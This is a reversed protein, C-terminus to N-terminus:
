TLSLTEVVTSELVLDDNAGLLWLADAEFRLIPKDWWRDILRSLAAAEGADLDDILNYVGVVYLSTERRGMVQQIRHFM